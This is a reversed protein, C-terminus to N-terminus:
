GGTYVLRFAIQDGESLLTQSVVSRSLLAGNLITLILPQMQGTQADFIDRWMEPDGNELRALLDGLTEGPGIEQELSLAGTRKSSMKYSFPPYVRLEVRALAEEGIKKEELSAARSGRL